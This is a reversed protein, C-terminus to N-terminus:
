VAMMNRHIMKFLKKPLMSRRPVTATWPANPTPAAEPAPVPSDSPSPSPIPSWPSQQSPLVTIVLKQGNKCHNAFGSIYWRRGYTTLVVKDNGSGLVPAAWPVSCSQFDSGNVRVVSDKGAVYKFTLTDGLHFVKNAAWVQYDVGLTWGKEDGVLYDTAVAITSFITAIIAFLFLARSLTM